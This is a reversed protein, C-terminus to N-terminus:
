RSTHQVLFLCQSAVERLAAYDDAEPKALLSNLSGLAPGIFQSFFLKKRQQSLFAFAGLIQLNRQLALLLYEQEFQLRDYPIHEQLRTVYVEKIKEQLSASLGMYPDILLSALDYALPGRRGGQYDIIRIKGNAVMINRSQFDRHLFFDTPAYGARRALLRCEAEMKQQDFSVDLFDQCLAQLFYGSERELMLQQDYCPTDWCWSSSFDQIGDVQMKVLESVVQQYWFFMENEKTEQFLDYLRQNGLDEVFLRGSDKEFGYLEPVPVGQGYLHRGIKWSSQAELLGPKDGVPAQIVLVRQDGPGILRYFLRQSGDPSVSEWDVTEPRWEEQSLNLLKGTSFILADILNRTNKAKVTM